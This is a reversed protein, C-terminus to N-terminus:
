MISVRPLAEGHLCLDQAESPKTVEPVAPEGEDKLESEEDKASIVREIIENDGGPFEFGTEGVCDEEIPNLMEKITLATGQIHGRKQLKSIQETLATELAELQQLPPWLTHSTVPTPHFSSPAPHLAKAILAKISTVAAATDKEAFNIVKFTDRWDHFHYSTGLHKNLQEEAKPSTDITRSAYYEVIAWARPDTIPGLPTTPPNTEPVNTTESSVRFTIKAVKYCLALKFLCVRHYWYAELM